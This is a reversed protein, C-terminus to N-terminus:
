AICTDEASEDVVLVFLDVDFNQGDMFEWEEILINLLDSGRFTDLLDLLLHTSGVANDKGNGLVIMTHRRRQLVGVVPERAATIFCGDVLFGDREDGRSRLSSVFGLGMHLIYNLVALHFEHLLRLNLDQAELRAVKTFVTGQGVLIVNVLQQREEVGKHGECLLVLGSSEDILSIDSLIM